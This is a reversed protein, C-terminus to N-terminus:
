QIHKSTHKQLLRLDRKKKEGGTYRSHSHRQRKFKAGRHESADPNRLTQLLRGQTELAVAAHPTERQRGGRPFVGEEM